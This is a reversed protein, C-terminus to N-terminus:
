FADLFLVDVIRCPCIRLDALVPIIQNYRLPYIAIAKIPNRTRLFPLGDGDDETVEADAPNNLEGARRRVAVKPNQVPGRNLPTNRHVVLLDM